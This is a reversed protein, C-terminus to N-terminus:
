WGWGPRFISTLSKTPIHADLQCAIAITSTIVRMPIALKAPIDMQRAAKIQDVSLGINRAAMQQLGNAPTTSVDVQLPDVHQRMMADIEATSVRAGKQIFGIKEM